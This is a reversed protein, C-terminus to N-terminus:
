AALVVSDMKEGRLGAQRRAAHTPHEHRQNATRLAVNENRHGIENRDTAHQSFQQPGPAAPHAHPNDNGAVAVHRGDMPRREMKALAQQPAAYANVLAAVEHQM